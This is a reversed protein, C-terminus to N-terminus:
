NNKTDDVLQPGSQLMWMNCGLMIDKNDRIDFEDIIKEYESILLKHHGCNVPNESTVKDLDVSPNSRLYCERIFKNFDFAM